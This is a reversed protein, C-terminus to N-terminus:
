VLKVNKEQYQSNLFSLTSSPNPEIGVLPLIKNTSKQKWTPFGSIDIYANNDIKHQHFGQKSRICGTEM